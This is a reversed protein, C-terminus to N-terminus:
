HFKKDSSTADILTMGAPVTRESITPGSRGQDIKLNVEPSTVMFHTGRQHCEGCEHCIDSIRRDRYAIQLLEVSDRDLDLANMIDINRKRDRITMICIGRLVAMEFV